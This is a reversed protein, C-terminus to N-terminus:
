AMALAPRSEPRQGPPIMYVGLLKEYDARISRYCECSLKELGARDTITISGRRYSILGAAALTQAAVTVGPRRVGLMVSLFEQTLPLEQSHMHDHTSLLWRACRQELTHLRNCAVQQSAQNAAASAFRKTIRALAPCEELLAVFKEARVRKAHGSIQVMVRCPQEDVGHLLSTGAFGERGITGVEISTPPEQLDNVISLLGSEVFWVNDIPENAEIVNRRLTLPVITTEAEVKEYEDPPLSRLLSNQEAGSDVQAAPSPVRHASTPRIQM